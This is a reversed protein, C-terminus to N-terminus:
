FKIMFLECAKQCCRKYAAFYKTILICFTGLKEINFFVYNTGEIEILDTNLLFCFIHFIWFCKMSISMCLVKVKIPTECNLCKCPQKSCIKKRVKGFLYITYSM